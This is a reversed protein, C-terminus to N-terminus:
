GMREIFRKYNNKSNSPNNVGSFPHNLKKHPLHALMLTVQKLLFQVTAVSIIVISNLADYFIVCKM